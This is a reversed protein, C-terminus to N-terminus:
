KTTPQILRAAAKPMNITDCGNVCGGACAMVEIFNGPASKTKAYMKLDRISQKTIGDIIIDHIISPDKATQKISATVGAVMAYGRGHGLITPDLPTDELSAIDIEKAKFLAELEEYSLVYNVNPDKHAESRKGVCPAVMVIIADKKTERIWRATYGMPTLAASVFPKIEPIHKVILERWAACCSTTMFPEGKALRDQLDKGEHETTMNAGKAVEVVDTFGLKKIATLVKTYPQKFQGGLSPAAIAIVEKGERIHRMIDVMFSKELIAGFPCAVMCKGCYICKEPDIHEVGDERKSIAGVPCAEECPVPQFIIAHYPCAQMCLGCSICKSPDIKAQSNEEKTIAAKHCAYTCPHAICSRCLNTVIYSSKVCSSCAEDVVTLMVETSEERQKALRAYYSLPDLEDKEDDTNFGMVAMTKYKAVARAKHICCRTHAAGKPYMDIPLRDIKDVLDNNVILKALRYLIDRRIEVVNNIQSM